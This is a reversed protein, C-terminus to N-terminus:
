KAYIVQMPHLNKDNLYVKGFKSKNKYFLLQSIVLTIGPDEIPEFNFTFAEQPVKSKAIHYEKHLIVSRTNMKLSSHFLIIRLEAYQCQTPYCLEKEAIFSPVSVELGEIPNRSISIKSYFYTSFPSSSNFEFGILDSMDASVLDLKGFSSQAKVIRFCSGLFRPIMNTDHKADLYPRLKGRIQAAQSSCLGFLTSSEKTRASQKIDTARGQVIQKGQVVKFILNGISGRYLGNVDKIAM